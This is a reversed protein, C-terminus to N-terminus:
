TLEGGTAEDNDGAILWQPSHSAKLDLLRVVRCDPIPLVDRNFTVTSSTDGVEAVTAALCGALVLRLSALSWM